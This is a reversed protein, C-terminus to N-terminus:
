LNNKFDSTERVGSLDVFSSFFLDLHFTTSYCVAFM